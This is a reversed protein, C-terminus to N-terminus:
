QRQCELAARAWLLISVEVEESAPCAASNLRPAATGGGEREWQIPSM